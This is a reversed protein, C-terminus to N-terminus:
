YMLWNRLIEKGQATIYSEPHFQVGKVDYIKHSLGMVIGNSGVATISLSEPITNVDVAWSHYLGAEFEVPINKFLSEDKRTVYVKMKIGHYVQKLNVLKAGYHEAIAQHGLCIGLISKTKEFKELVKFMVPFQAPVEPGPSFCIKDYDIIEEIEFNDCKVVVPEVCCFDSFVRVLNYTFSDNNDIILLRPKM